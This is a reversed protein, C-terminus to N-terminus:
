PGGGGTAVASKGSGKGKAMSKPVLVGGVNVYKTFAEQANKYDNNANNILTIIDQKM